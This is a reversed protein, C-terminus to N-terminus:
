NSGMFAFIYYVVGCIIIIGLILLLLKVFVNNSDWYDDKKTSSDEMLKEYNERNNKNFDLEGKEVPESNEEVTVEIIDDPKEEDSTIGVLPENSNDLLNETNSEQSQTDILNNNDNETNNFFAM